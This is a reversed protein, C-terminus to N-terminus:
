AEFLATELPRVFLDLTRGEGGGFLINGANNWSITNYRLAGSGCDARSSTAVTTVNAFNIVYVGTLTSVACQLANNVSISLIASDMDRITTPGRLMRLDSIVLRKDLGATFLYNDCSTICSVTNTHHAMSSVNRPDRLDYLLTSCDRSGTIILNDRDRPVHIATIIDSHDFYRQTVCPGDYVLLPNANSTRVGVCYRSGSPDNLCKLGSIFSADDPETGGCEQWQAKRNGDESYFIVAPPTNSYRGVAGVILSRGRNTLGVCSAYHRSLLVNQQLVGVGNWTGITGDSSSTVVLERCNVGGFYVLSLISSEHHPISRRLSLSPNCPSWGFAEMIYEVDYLFIDNSQAFRVARRLANLSVADCNRTAEYAIEVLKGLCTMGATRTAENEIMQVLAGIVSRISLLGKKAMVAITEAYVLLPARSCDLRRPKSLFAIVLQVIAEKARSQAEEPLRPIVDIFPSVSEGSNARDKNFLAASCMVELSDEFSVPYSLREVLESVVAGYQKTQIAKKIRSSLAATDTKFRVVAGPSLESLVTQVQPARNLESHGLEINVTIKM